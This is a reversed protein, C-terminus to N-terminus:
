CVKGALGRIEVTADEGLAVRAVKRGKSVLAQFDGLAQAQCLVSYDYEEGPIPVKEYEKSVLQLFLGTNPGGKHYQGTSHLFRPGYGFTTAIKYRKLVAARLENVAKEIEPNEDLYAMIALYRGPAAEALLDAFPVSPDEKPLSGTAKYGDIVSVSATKAAQVDPQDFPHIGLFHSAVATAYEWRFFEAGLDLGDALHIIAVPHGAKRLDELRGDLSRDDPSVIATFVRDPGYLSVEGAPEGVIPLIGKGNKGTSEALLQEIWLGLSELGSSTLLTLKDRGGDLCAALFVGLKAGPNKEVDPKRCADGMEEAAELIRVPDLGLLIAPILGFFSMASFRGGVNPNNSFLLAFDREKALKELSTGPDTIAFFHDGPKEVESSLRDWFFKFASMVEITGGSKSAVIFLAKRIDITEAVRGVWDPVTTDLVHLAPYGGQSGLIRSFVLPCLSSGGMGLLVVDRFGRELHKQISETITGISDLSESPLELWDLRNTIETPKPNWVTHDHDWIRRLINQEGLKKGIEEFSAALGSPLSHSQQFRNESM